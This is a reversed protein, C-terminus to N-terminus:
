NSPACIDPNPKKALFVRPSIMIMLDIERSGLTTSPYINLGLNVPMDKKHVMMYLYSLLSMPTM